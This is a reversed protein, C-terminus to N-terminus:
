TLTGLLRETCVAMRTYTNTFSYQSVLVSRTGRLTSRKNASPPPKALNEPLECQSLTSKPNEFRSPGHRSRTSIYVVRCLAKTFGTLTGRSKSLLVFRRLDLLFMSKDVLSVTSKTCTPFILHRSSDIGNTSASLM